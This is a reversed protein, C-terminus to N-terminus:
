AKSYLNDLDENKYQNKIQNYYKHCKNLYEKNDNQHNRFFMFTYRKDTKESGRGRIVKFKIYEEFSKTVYHKIYGSHNHLNMRRMHIYKYVGHKNYFYEFNKTEFITDCGKVKYGNKTKAIDPCHRSNIKVIDPSVKLFYKVSVIASCVSETFRKQVPFAEYNIKSNATMNIWPFVLANYGRRETEELYKKISNNYKPCYIFEDVDIFGVWDYELAYKRYAENYYLMQIKKKNQIDYYTLLGADIYKQVIPKIPHEYDSDNNDGLIVHDVGISYNWDLWEEIYLEEMKALAIICVKM